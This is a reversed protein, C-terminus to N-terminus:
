QMLVSCLGALNLLAALIKRGKEAALRAYNPKEIDQVSALADYIKEDM